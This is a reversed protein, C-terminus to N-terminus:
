TFPATLEKTLSVLICPFNRAIQQAEHLAKASADARDGRVGTHRRLVDPGEEAAVADGATIEAPRRAQSWSRRWFTRRVIASAPTAKATIRIDM